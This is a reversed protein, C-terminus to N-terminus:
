EIKTSMLYILPFVFMWVLDVFHWYLGAVEVDIPKFKGGKYQLALGVLYFVGATVHLMHMGTAAFFTGWMMPLVGGNAAKAPQVWEHILEIWEWSHLVVFALGGLATMMIWFSAKDRQKKNARDVALVMTLSSSLLVFTMTTSKLISAAHFPTPWELNAMRVFSYAFLLAAFTISDSVIFLWM